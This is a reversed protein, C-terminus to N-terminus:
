INNREPFNKDHNSSFCIKQFYLIVINTIRKSLIKIRIFSDIYNNNCAIKNFSNM